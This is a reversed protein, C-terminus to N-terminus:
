HHPPQDRAIEDDREDELDLDIEDSTVEPLMKPDKM